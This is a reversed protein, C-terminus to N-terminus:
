EDKEKKMKIVVTPIFEAKVNGVQITKGTKLVADIISTKLLELEDRLPKTRKRYSDQEIKLEDKLEKYRQMDDEIM